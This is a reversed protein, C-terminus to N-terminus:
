AIVSFSFKAPFGQPHPNAPVQAIRFFTSGRFIAAAGKPHIM